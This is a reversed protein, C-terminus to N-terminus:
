ASPFACGDHDGPNGIGVNNRLTVPPTLAARSSLHIGGQVPHGQGDVLGSPHHGNGVFVNDSVPDPGARNPGWPNDVFIGVTNNGNFVNRRVIIHRLMSDSRLGIDNGTFANEEITNADQPLFTEAAGLGATASNKFVNARVLNRRSDNSLGMPFADFVNRTFTGQDTASVTLSGGTLASNRIASGSSRVMVTQKTVTCRDITILGDVLRLGSMLCADQRTGTFTITGPWADIPAALLRVDTATVDTRPMGSVSSLYIGYRFGSITGNRLTFGPRSIATLGNGTGSGTITHGNLDLDVDDAGITLATGTCTLDATLTTDATLVDGCAM